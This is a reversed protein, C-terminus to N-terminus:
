SGHIARKNGDHKERPALISIEKERRPYLVHEVGAYDRIVLDTDRPNIIKVRRVELQEMQM